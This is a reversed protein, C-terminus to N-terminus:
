QEPYPFPLLDEMEAAGEGLESLVKQYADEFDGRLTILPSFPIGNSGSFQQFEVESQELVLCWLSSPPNDEDIFRPQNLEDIHGAFAHTASSIDRLFNVYLNAEASYSRTNLDRYFAVLNEELAQFPEPNMWDTVKLPTRLIEQLRDHDEIFWPSFPVGWQDGRPLLIDCLKDHIFAKFLVDVSQDVLLTDLLGLLPARVRSNEGDLYQEIQEQVFHSELTLEPKELVQGKINGAWHTSTVQRVQRRGQILFNGHQTLKQVKESSSDESDFKEDTAIARIQGFSFIHRLHERKTQYKAQGTFTLGVKVPTYETLSYRWVDRIGSFSVISSLAEYEEESNEPYVGVQDSKIRNWVEDPGKFLLRRDLEGQDNEFIYDHTLVKQAALLAAGQYAELEVARKLSELYIELDVAENLQSQIEQDQKQKAVMERLSELEDRDLQEKEIEQKSKADLPSAVDVPQPKPDQKASNNEGQDQQTYFYVALAICAAALAWVFAVGVGQKAPEPSGAEEKPLYESALDNEVPALLYDAVVEIKMAEAVPDDGEPLDRGGAGLMAELGMFVKKRYTADPMRFKLIAQLDGMRLELGPPLETHELYIALFKKKRNLALNVENRCNESAASRPSTFMLFLDCDIVAKAIHEPWDQGPDIGEDYWIRYGAEHLRRIERFVLEGDAHSYSVFVFPKEGTYAEFPPVLHQRRKEESILIGPVHSVTTWEECGEFWASDIPSFAGEDLSAQLESLSFPGSKKDNKYVYVNVALGM